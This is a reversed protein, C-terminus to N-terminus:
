KSGDGEFCNGCLKDSLEFLRKADAESLAHRSCKAERCDYYYLGQPPEDAGALMAHTRAPVDPSVGHRGRRAWFWAVIGNTQKLGIETNVLGPDVVYARIGPAYRRNLEAAFLLNCLKSQKYAMLCSYRKKYMVDKWHVRMHKHSKSGTLIVRGHAAQLYPLLRATLLFGSLHNLAFQLEFGEETTTYWNRVGGANLILADLKGGCEAEILAVAEDVMANVASQQALDAVLCRIDADPVASRVKACAAECRAAARGIGIVRMGKACLKEAVALGIGSTAGTIIATKM